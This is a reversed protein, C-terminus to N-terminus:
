VRRSTPEQVPNGSKEQCLMGFRHFIYWIEVLIGCKWLISLFDMFYVLLGYLLGVDEIALGELNVRVQL